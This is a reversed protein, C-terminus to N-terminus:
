EGPTGTPTKINQAGNKNFVVTNGSASATLTGGGTLLNTAVTLSSNAANVWTGMAGTISGNITITGNNTATVGNGLAINNIITLSATSLISADGNIVINKSSSHIGTGDITQGSGGTFLIDKVGTKTGNLVLNGDVTIDGANDDNLVGGSNITLDNITEAATLTVTHGSAIVANDTTAPWDTGQVGPSTNGWTGGDDWDGSQTSTFTTQAISSSVAILLLIILLQLVRYIM